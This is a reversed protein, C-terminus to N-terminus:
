MWDFGHLKRGKADGCGQRSRRCSERLNSFTDKAATTLSFSPLHYGLSAAVAMFFL